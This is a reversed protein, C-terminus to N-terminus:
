SGDAAGALAKFTLVLDGVAQWWRTTEKEYHLKELLEDCQGVDEALCKMQAAFVRAAIFKKCWLISGRFVPESNRNRPIRWVHSDDEDEIYQNTIITYRAAEEVGVRAIEALADSMNM